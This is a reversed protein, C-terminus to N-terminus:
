RVNNYYCKTKSNKYAMYKLGKLSGIICIYCECENEIDIDACKIYKIKGKNRNSNNLM